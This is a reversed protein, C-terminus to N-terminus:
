RDPHHATCEREAEPAAASRRGGGGRRAVGRAPADPSDRRSGETPRDAARPRGGRTSQSYIQRIEDNGGGPPSVGVTTALRWLDLAFLPGSRLFRRSKREM